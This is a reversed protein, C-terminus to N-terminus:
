NKLNKYIKKADILNKKNDIALISGQVKIMKVKIENEILRLIEIDEISEIPTKRRKNFFFKRLINPHFGYVCVQKKAKNFFFKKSRPISARSIYILNGKKSILVKPVNLDNFENKKLIDTYCNVVKVNPKQIELIVKKIAIPSVFIEDAQVNIYFNKKIKNAVEAVRDTGTLNKKSTMLVSIDINECVDKIRKDDTAVIINNKETAKLCQKITLEIVSTGNIKKLLKGKFRKSGYRAPIVVIYNKKKCIPM